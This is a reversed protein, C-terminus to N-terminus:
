HASVARGCASGVQRVRAVEQELLDLSLRACGPLEAIPQRVKTGEVIFVPWVLDRATLHTEQVLERVSASARLRRPRETLNMKYEVM